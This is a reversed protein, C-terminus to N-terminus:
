VIAYTPDWEPSLGKGSTLRFGAAEPVYTLMHLVYGMVDEEEAIAEMFTVITRCVQHLYVQYVESFWALPTDDTFISIHAEAEHLLSLAASSCGLAKAEDDM